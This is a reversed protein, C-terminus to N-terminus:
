KIYSLEAVDSAANHLLRLKQNPPFTELELKEYKMIHEKCHLVSPHSIRRWTGPYRTTTIYKLLSDGSLQAATSSLEHKMLEQYFSQVDCTAELQSVLSNGKDIKLQEQLVANMFTLMEKFLGVYIANTPSYNADLVLHTQHM